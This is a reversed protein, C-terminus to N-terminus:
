IADEASICIKIEKPVHYEAKLSRVFNMKRSLSDGTIATTSLAKRGYMMRAIEFEYLAEALHKYETLRNNRLLLFKGGRRCLRATVKPKHYSVEMGLPKPKEIKSLIKFVEALTEEREEEAINEFVAEVEEITKSVIINALCEHYYM